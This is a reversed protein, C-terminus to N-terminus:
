EVIIRQNKIVGNMTLRVVYMGKPLNPLPVTFYGSTNSFNKSFVEKGGISYLRLNSIHGASNLQLLNNNIITPYVKVDATSSSGVTIVASYEARGSFEEIRLRYFIKDPTNITHRYSYSAGTSHNMAQVVGAQTYDFGNYSYEVVFRSIDQEMATTWALDNFSTNAKAAFHTLRLPTVTNTTVIFISDDGPNPVGSLAPSKTIYLDGNETESISTVYQAMNAQTTINFNSGDKQILWLTRMYFDTALYYGQLEAISGRYVYGGVVSKGEDPNDYELVPPIKGPPDCLPDVNINQQTGEFCRWGFNAGEAGGELYDVEELRNQGVDGIWMDGNARDFSWRFPNRLGISWVQPTVPDPEDVNVRIIKGLLSAPNQANNNPDNSSGGDGTGFYLYNTNNEVKFQLHGGNHNTFPKDIQVLPMGVTDPDAVNENNDSVKFRSVTIDGDTNNYYLFFYGNTAYEPHFAMSLMGQEGSNRVLSGIDIFPTALLATGDWIKVTGGKEVIFLRGTADGPASKVEMPGNLGDTIVPDYVVTPQAQLALNLFCILIPLSFRKRCLLIAKRM